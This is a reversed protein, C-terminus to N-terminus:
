EDNRTPALWGDAGGGRSAGDEPGSLWCCERHPLREAALPVADGIFTWATTSPTMTTATGPHASASVPRRAPSRNRAATAPLVTDKAVGAPATGILYLALPVMTPWDFLTRAGNM